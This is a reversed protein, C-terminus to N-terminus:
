NRVNHSDLNNQVLRPYSPPVPFHLAREKKRTDHPLLTLAANLLRRRPGRDFQKAAGDGNNSVSRWCAFSNLMPIGVVEIIRVCLVRVQSGLACESSQM